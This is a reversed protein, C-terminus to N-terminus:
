FLIERLKQRLESPAAEQGCCTRVLRKVDSRLQFTDECPPCSDLHERVTALEADSLERDVYADLQNICDGCNM